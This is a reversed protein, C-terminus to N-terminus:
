TGIIGFIEKMESAAFQGPATEEGRELSAFTLYSGFLPAMIRSVKGREGMCLAIINQEREKAWGILKLIKLNDEISVAFPVIKVIDAGMELCRNFIGQLVGYPPTSNFDHHSIILQTREGKKQIEELLISALIRDANMELDIIDAGMRVADILMAIRETEGGKFHGGEERKRATVIVPGKRAALLRGLDPNDIMDVRLEVIDALLFAAEMRKLAEENTRAVIPICIM